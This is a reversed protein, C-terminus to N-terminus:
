GFQGCRSLSQYSIHHRAAHADVGGLPKFKVESDEDRLQGAFSVHAQRHSAGSRLLQTRVGQRGQLPSAISCISFWHTCHFNGPMPQASNGPQQQQAQRKLVHRDGRVITRQIARRSRGSRKRDLVAKVVLVLATLRQGVRAQAGLMAVGITRGARGADVWGREGGKRRSQRGDRKGCGYRLVRDCERQARIWGLRRYARTEATQQDLESGNRVRRM